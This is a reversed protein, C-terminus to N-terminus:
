KEILTKVIWFAVSSAFGGITALVAIQGQRIKDATDKKDHRQKNEYVIEVLGKKGIREDNELIHLLRDMKFDMKNRWNMIEINKEEPTM